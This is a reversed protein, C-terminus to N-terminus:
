AWGEPLGASMMAPWIRGNAGSGPQSLSSVLPVGLGLVGEADQIVVALADRLVALLGGQPIPLCSLLPVHLGLM